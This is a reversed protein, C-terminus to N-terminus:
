RAHKMELTKMYDVFSGMWEHEAILVYTVKFVRASKLVQTLPEVTPDGINLSLDVEKQLSPDTWTPYKVEGAKVWKRYVPSILRHGSRACLTRNIHACEDEYWPLLELDYLVKDIEDAVDDSFISKSSDKVKFLVTCEALESLLTLPSYDAGTFGSFMNELLKRDKAAQNGRPFYLKAPDTEVDINM